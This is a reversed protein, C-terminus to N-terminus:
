PGTVASAPATFAAPIYCLRFRATGASTNTNADQPTVGELTVRYNDFFHSTLVPIAGQKRSYGTDISFAAAGFFLGGRFVPATKPLAGLAWVTDKM